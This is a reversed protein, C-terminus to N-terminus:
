EDEDYIARDQPQFWATSRALHKWARAWTIREDDPVRLSYMYYDVTNKAVYQVDDFVSRTFFNFNTLWNQTKGALSAQITANSQWEYVLQPSWWGEWKDQREEIPLSATRADLALNHLHDLWDAYKHSLTSDMYANKWEPNVSTGRIKNQPIDYFLHEILRGADKYEESAFYDLLKEYPSTPSDWKKNSSSTWYGIATTIEYNDFYNPVHLDKLIYNRDELPTFLSAFLIGRDFNEKCLIRMKGIDRNLLYDLTTLYVRATRQSKKNVDSGEWVNEPNWFLADKWVSLDVRKRRYNQYEIMKAQLVKNLHTKFYAARERNVHNPDVMFKLVDKAQDIPAYEVLADVLNLTLKTTKSIVPIKETVKETANKILNKMGQVSEKQPILDIVGKIADLVKQAESDEGRNEMANAVEMRYLLVHLEDGFQGERTILKHIESSERDYKIAERLHKYNFNDSYLPTPPIRGNGPGLNTFMQVQEMYDLHKNLEYSTYVELPKDTLTYVSRPAMMRHEAMSYGVGVGLLAVGGTIIYPLWSARTRPQEHAAQMYYNSLVQVSPAVPFAREIKRIQVADERPIGNPYLIKQKPAISQSFEIDPSNINRLKTVISFKTNSREPNAISEAYERFINSVLLQVQQSSKSYIYHLSEANSKTEIDALFRLTGKVIHRENEWMYQVTNEPNIRSVVSQPVPAPAAAAAPAIEKEEM